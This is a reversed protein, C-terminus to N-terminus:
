VVAVTVIALDSKGLPANPKVLSVVKIIGLGSNIVVMGRVMARVPPSSPCCVTLLLSDCASHNFVM